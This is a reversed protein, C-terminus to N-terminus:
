KAVQKVIVGRRLVLYINRCVGMGNTQRKQKRFNSGQPGKGIKLLMSAYPIEQILLPDIDTDKYGFIASNIARFTDAYRAINNHYIAM